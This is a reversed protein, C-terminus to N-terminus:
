AGEGQANQELEALRKDIAKVIWVPTSDDALEKLRRLPIPSTFQKARSAFAQPKLLLLARLEDDTMANTLEIEDNRQSDEHALLGREIIAKNLQAFAYAERESYLEVINNDIDLVIDRPPADPQYPDLRFVVVMAPVTKRWREYVRNAFEPYIAQM